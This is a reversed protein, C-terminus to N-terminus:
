LQEWLQKSLYKWKSVKPFSDLPDKSDFYIDTFFM